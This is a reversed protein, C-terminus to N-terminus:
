AALEHEDLYGVIGALDDELDALMLCAMQLDGYGITERIVVIRTLADRLIEHLNQPGSM